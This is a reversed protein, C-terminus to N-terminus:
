SGEEEIDASVELVDVTRIDGTAKELLPRADPLDGSLHRALHELTITQRQLELRDKSHEQVIRVTQAQTEKRVGDLAAALLKVEERHQDREKAQEIALRKMAREVMKPFKYLMAALVLGLLVATAGGQALHDLLSDSLGNM